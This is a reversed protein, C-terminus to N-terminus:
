HVSRFVPMKPRITTRVGVNNLKGQPSITRFDCSNWSAVLSYTGAVVPM